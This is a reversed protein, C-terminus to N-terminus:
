EGIYITMPIRSLVEAAVESELRQKEYHQSLSMEEFMKQLGEILQEKMQIAWDIVMNIEIFLGVSDFFDVLLGYKMAICSIEFQLLDIDDRSEVYKEFEEKCKGELKM